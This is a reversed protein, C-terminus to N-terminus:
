RLEGASERPGAAAAGSRRQVVLAAVCLVVNAAVFVALIVGSGTAMAVIGLGLTAFAALVAPWRPSFAARGGILRSAFGAALGVLAMERVTDVFWVSGTALCAAYVVVVGAILGTAIWDRGTFRRPNRRGATSVVGVM